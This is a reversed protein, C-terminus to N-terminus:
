PPTIGQTQTETDEALVLLNDRFAKLHGRPLSGGLAAGLPGRRFFLWRNSGQGHSRFFPFPWVPALRLGDVQPHCGPTGPVLDYLEPVPHQPYLHNGRGLSALGIGGDNRQQGSVQSNGPPPQFDDAPRRGPVLHHFHSTQTLLFQQGPQSDFAFHPPAFLRGKRM